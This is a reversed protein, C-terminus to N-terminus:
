FNSGGFIGPRNMDPYLAGWRQIEEPSADFCRREWQPMMPRKGASPTNPQVQSPALSASGDAYTMGDPLVDTVLVGTATYYESVYWRLTWTVTEPGEVLTDLISRVRPASYSDLEGELSVIPMGDLVQSNIQLEAM